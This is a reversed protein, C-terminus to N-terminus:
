NIGMSPQSASDGTRITNRNKRDNFQGPNCKILTWNVEQACRPWWWILYLLDYLNPAVRTLRLEYFYIIINKPLRSLPAFSRNRIVVCLGVFYVTDNDNNNGFGQREDTWRAYETQPPM